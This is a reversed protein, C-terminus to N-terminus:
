SCDQSPTRVRELNLGFHRGFHAAGSRLTFVQTGPPRHLLLVGHVGDPGVLPVVLSREPRERLDEVVDVHSHHTALDDLAIEVEVPAFLRHTHPRSM